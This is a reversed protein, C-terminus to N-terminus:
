ERAAKRLWGEFERELADADRGFADALGRTRDRGFSREELGELYRELNRRGDRTARALFHTMAWAEAYRARASQGEFDRKDAFLMERWGLAVGSARADLLAALLDRRLLGSALGGQGDESWELETAIGEDLWVPTSTSRPARVHLMAHGLEHSLSQELGPESYAVYMDLRWRESGEGDERVRGRPGPGGRGRGIGGPGPKRALFGKGRYGQPYERLRASEHEELTRALHLRVTETWPGSIGLFGAHGDQMALLARELARPLKPGVSTRVEVRGVEFVWGDGGARTGRAGSYETERDWEVLRLGHACAEADHGLERARTWHGRSADLDGGVWALYGLEAHCWAPDAGSALARSVAGAAAGYEGRERRIRSLKAQAEVSAPLIEAAKAAAAIAEDFRRERALLDGLNMYAWASSPDLSLTREYAARALAFQGMQHLSFARYKWAVLSDARTEIAANAAALAGRWDGAEIRDELERELRADAESEAAAAAVAVAGAVTGPPASIAAGCALFLALSFVAALPRRGRTATRERAFRM